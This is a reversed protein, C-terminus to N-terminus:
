KDWEIKIGDFVDGFFRSGYAKIGERLSDFEKVEQLEFRQVGIEMKWHIRCRNGPLSEILGGDFGQDPRWGVPYWDEQQVVRAIADVILHGSLSGGSLSQRDKVNLHWNDVFRKALCHQHENKTMDIPM